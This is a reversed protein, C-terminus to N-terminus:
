AGRQRSSRVESRANCARAYAAFDNARLPRSFLYGQAICMGRTALFDLQQENEVGEAIVELDLSQGIRIIAECIAMDAAVVPIHQMFRHSIKIGEIPLRRLYGLASYGEGFDDIVMRVGLGQLISFTQQSDSLDEILVRETLELELAEGPLDFERLASVICSTLSGGLVQRYSVNVAVHALDLGDNRWQRLQRCTERITWEGIAVIDGNAEAYPVFLDPSVEGLDHNTWRLLAEASRVRRTALDLQPQFELQFEGADIARRLQSEIHVRHSARRALAPTFRQWLNRGRRKAEVMAAGAHSMLQHLTAGDEPHQAIGTSLTLRMEHDDVRFPEAFASALAEATRQCQDEDCDAPLLVMFEDGGIRACLWEGALNARLREAVVALLRDGAGYGLLDNVTRFRDLNIHLLSPGGQSGAEAIEAAIAELMVDRNPLGTLPDTMAKRRLQDEVAKQETIDQLTGSLATVSDGHRIPRAVIRIWRRRGIASTMRLDIEVLDGRRVTALAERFRTRSEGPMCCMMRELTIESDLPLDFIVYIQRTWDIHDNDFGYQWGGIHALEQAQAFLESERKIATVDTFTSVVQLVDACGEKFQPVSTVSLWRQAGIHPLYIGIVTNSIARGSRLARLNPMEEIPFPQGHEDLLKWEAFQAERMARLQESSRAFIRCAAPNCSVIRGRRDQVIVGKDMAEVLLRFRAESARLELDAKHRSSIDRAVAVIRKDGGDFYANSHVEVPFGMGDGRRNVTEITYTQGLRFESLVREMHDPPLGPNLDHVSLTKLVEREYGYTRCAAANADVIRGLEDHITVADPVADVLSRYRTAVAIAVSHLARQSALAEGLAAQLEPDADSRAALEALRSWVDGNAAPACSPEADSIRASASSVEQEGM